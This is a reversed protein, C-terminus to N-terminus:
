ARTGQNTWGQNGGTDQTSPAGKELGTGEPARTGAKEHGRQLSAGSPARKNGCCLSAEAPRVEPHFLGGLRCASVTARGVGSLAQKRFVSRGPHPKQPGEWAGGSLPMAAQHRCSRRHRGRRTPTWGCQLARNPLFPPRVTGM